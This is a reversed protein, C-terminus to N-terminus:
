PRQMKTEELFFVSPQFSSLLNDFSSLKSTLGACNVGFTKFNMNMQNYKRKQVRQNNRKGSHVSKFHKILSARNVFYKICKNCRVMENTPYDMAEM